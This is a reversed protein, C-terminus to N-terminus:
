ARTLIRNTSDAISDWDFECFRENNLALRRRNGADERIAVTLRERLTEIDGPPFLAEEDDMIEMNPPISSCLIKLGYGLAELLVIPLGEHYSPLVFCGANSYVERLTDGKIVGTTVVRTDEAAMKKLQVSYNDEHDADGALVLKWDTDVGKFAKLLDHLGKEPVFRAVALVYKHPKVGLKELYAGPQIPQSVGIGNPIYHVERGYRTQLNKKITKSVAIVESSYKTGLMEGMRLASKALAGWKERNYDPGHNTVVVKLGCLRVLPTVLSPGLAHIHVVDFMKRDFVIRLAGLLSHCVAELSKMKPAWIPFVEVGKYCYHRPPVYGRRAYVRVRCGLSVLRPYLNECHKEIGGQVEPFGRTGLVAIRPGVLREM